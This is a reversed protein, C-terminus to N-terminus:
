PRRRPEPEGRRDPNLVAGPHKSGSPEIVRVDDVRERVASLLERKPDVILTCGLGSQPSLMGNVLPMIGSATKGSGTEGLMLAHRRLYNLEVRGGPWLANWEPVPISGDRSRRKPGRSRGVRDILFLERALTASIERDMSFLTRYTNALAAVNAADAADGDLHKRLGDLMGTKDKSDIAKSQTALLLAMVSWDGPEFADVEARRKKIDKAAEVGREALRAIDREDTHTLTAAANGADTATLHVEGRIRSQDYRLRCEPSARRDDGMSLLSAAFGATQGSASTDIRVGDKRLADICGLLREYAGSKGGTSSISIEIREYFCDERAHEFEDILGTVSKQNIRGTLRVVARDNLYKIM